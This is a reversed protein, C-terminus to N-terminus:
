QETQRAQLWVYSREKGLKVTLEASQELEVETNTALIRLDRLEMPLRFTDRDTVERLLLLQVDGGNRAVFGTLSRGSPVEGVPEVDAYRLMDRNKKWVPLLRAMERRRNDPLFQSEMWFLPNCFIVQALLYDMDYLEPRFPDEQSYSETNLEPNVLELQLKGAPVVRSLQWLNRLVRHPFSNGTKTYRNEVFITGYPAAALYGLRQDATVDLEVSVDPGFALVTKLFEQMKDCHDRSVLQIMDLKFYRTGWEEYAKKLVAVDRDYHEFCYRSHPAFWIGLKMGKEAAEKNLVAIGEPFRETNLDWFNGQLLRFRNEDWKNPIGTQWGDDIQVIDLGLNGASAIERRIFEQEVRSRSNADGWTNSMAHLGPSRWHCRYWDRCLKEAQGTPCIGITVPYGHNELTFQYHKVSLAPIVHEPAAALLVTTMGTVADELFFIQGEQRQAAGAFLHQRSENLLTDCRDTWAGFRIARVTTHEGPVPGTFRPLGELEAFPMDEWQYCNLAGEETEAVTRLCTKWLGSNDFDDSKASLVGEKSWQLLGSTLTLIGNELNATCNRM